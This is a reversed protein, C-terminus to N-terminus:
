AYEEPEVFGVLATKIQDMKNIGTNLVQLMANISKHTTAIDIANRYLVDKITEVARNGLTALIELDKLVKIQEQDLSYLKMPRLAKFLDEKQNEFPQQQQPQVNQALVQVLASYKQSINENVVECDIWQTLQDLERITM